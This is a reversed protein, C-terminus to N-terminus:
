YPFHTCFSSFLCSDLGDMFAMCVRVLLVEWDIFPCSTALIQTYYDFVSSFITNGNADEYPPRTHDLARRKPNDQASSILLHNIVSPTALCIIKSSIKAKITTSDTKAATLKFNPHLLDIPGDQCTVSLINCAFASPPMSCINSPSLYTTLCYAERGDNMDWSEQPLEIYSEIHLDTVRPLVVIVLSLFDLNIQICVFFIHQKWCTTMPGNVVPLLIALNHATTTDNVQAGGNNQFLLIMLNAFNCWNRCFHRNWDGRVGDVITSLNLQAGLNDLMVHCNIGLAALATKNM